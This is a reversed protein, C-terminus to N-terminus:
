PGLPGPNAWAWPGPAWPSPQRTQTQRNRTDRAKLERALYGAREETQQLKGLLDARTAEAARAAARLETEAATTLDDREQASAALRAQLEANTELHEPLLYPARAAHDLPQAPRLALWQQWALSAAGQRTPQSGSAATALYGLTAPRLAPRPQPTTPYGRAQARAARREKRGEEAM